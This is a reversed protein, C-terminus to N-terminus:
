TYVALIELPNSCKNEFSFEFYYTSDPNLSGFDYAIKRSLGQNDFKIPDLDLENEVKPERCHILSPIVFFSLGPIV